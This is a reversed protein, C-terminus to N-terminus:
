SSAGGGLLPRVVAMAAACGPTAGAVVSKADTLGIMVGVVTSVGWWLDGGAKEALAAPAETACSQVQRIVAQPAGLQALRQNVESMAPDLIFTSLLWLFADRIM